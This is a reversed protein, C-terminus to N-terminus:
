RPAGGPPPTAPAAPPQSQTAGSTERNLREFYEIVLQREGPGLQQL